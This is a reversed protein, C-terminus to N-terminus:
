VSSENHSIRSAWSHNPSLKTTYCVRQAWLIAGRKGRTLALSWQGVKWGFRGMAIAVARKGALNVRRLYVLTKKLRFRIMIVKWALVSEIPSPAFDGRQRCRM